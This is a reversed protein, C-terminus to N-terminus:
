KCKTLNVTAALQFKSCVALELRDAAFLIAFCVTRSQRSQIKEIGLHKPESLGLLSEVPKQTITTNKTESQLKTNSKTQPYKEIQRLQNCLDREVPERELPRVEKM